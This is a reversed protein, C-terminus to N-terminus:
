HPFPSLKHASCSFKNKQHSNSARCLGEETNGMIWVLQLKELSKWGPLSVGTKTKDGTSQLFVMLSPSPLFSIDRLPRNLMCTSLPMYNSRSEFVSGARGEVLQGRKSM